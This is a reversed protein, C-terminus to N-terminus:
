PPLNRRAAAVIEQLTLFEEVHPANVSCQRRGRPPPLIILSIMAAAAAAKATAAAAWDNGFRGTVSMTGNGGPPDVSVAARSTASAIRTGSPWGTTTSFTPPAPPLM